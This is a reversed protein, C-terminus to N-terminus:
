DRSAGICDTHHTSPWPASPPRDDARTDTPTGTRTGTILYAVDYGALSMRWLTKTTPRAHGGEYLSLRKPPMYCAIAAASQTLGLRRREHLLRARFADAFERPTM